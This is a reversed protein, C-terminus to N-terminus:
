RDSIDSNHQIGSEADRTVPLYPLLVSFCSGVGEQSSVTLQGQMAEVLQKTICLGIGTGEIECKVGLREFSNFLLSMQAPNLGRGTDIVNIKIKNDILESSLTVCGKEKNYKIANSILNLLVQKFRLPDAILELSPQLTIEDIIRIGRSAASLRTLSICNKISTNLDFGIINLELKGAEITSLELVENILHLLHQGANIIESVNEKQDANLEDMELLQAFGLVANMPTRLEHSMRSLFETKARSFAEAQIKEQILKEENRKHKDIDLHVGVRLKVIKPRLPKTIYDVAGFELGRLEDDVDDKATVFIVPIARTKDNSKLQACVEYGDMEPMMVDLLIIQPQRTEAITLATKGNTAFIIQYDAQLIQALILINDKLDDVILILQKESHIM